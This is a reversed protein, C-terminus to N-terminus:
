AGEFFSDVAEPSLPPVTAVRRNEEVHEVDKMGCLPAAVGPTSRAFQICRQADTKLGPFKDRFEPAFQGILQGQALAVSTFVTLGLDAAVRLATAPADGQPQTEARYAEPLALNYPLQIVRFHHDKGGAEEACKVIRELSLFGPDADPVRFAQWTAAGYCGIKGEKVAAELVRFAETLRPYFEDPVVESLQTEPNHVYYVDITELGLNARSQDIEHSLYKPTMCHSRAVIDEVKVIGPNLYTEEFWERTAPGMDGSVFGGKTCVIVQDRSVVGRDIAQQLAAGMNRESRQHRYNIATDIVNVGLEMSRVAAAAYRGDTVPDANGTYSGIGLSSHTLGLSTRWDDAHKKAFAATGEPTAHGSIM